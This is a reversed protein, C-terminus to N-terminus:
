GIWRFILRRVPRYTLGKINFYVKICGDLQQEKMTLLINMRRSCGEEMVEMVMPVPLRTEDVNYHGEFTVSGFDKTLTM